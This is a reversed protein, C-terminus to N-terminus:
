RTAPEFGARSVLLVVLTKLPNERSVENQDEAIARDSQGKSACAIGLNYRAIASDPSKAPTDPWLNLDNQWVNNRIITGVAYV